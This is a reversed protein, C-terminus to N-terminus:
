TSCFYINSLKKGEDKSGRRGGPVKLGDGSGDLQQSGDIPRTLM